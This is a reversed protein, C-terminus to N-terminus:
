RVDNRREELATVREELRKLSLAVEELALVMFCAGMVLGHGKAGELLAELRDQKVSM